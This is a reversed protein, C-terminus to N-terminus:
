GSSKSSALKKERAKDRLAAFEQYYDEIEEESLNELEIMENRAKNLSRLVEDLKLQMAKADRNQSNQILFVM